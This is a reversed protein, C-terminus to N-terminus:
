NDHAACDLFFELIAFHLLEDFTSHIPSALLLLVAPDGVLLQPQRSSDPVPSGEM